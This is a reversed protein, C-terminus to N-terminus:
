SRKMYILYYIKIYIIINILNKWTIYFYSILSLTINKARYICLYISLFAIEIYKKYENLNVPWFVLCLFADCNERLELESLKRCNSLLEVRKFSM